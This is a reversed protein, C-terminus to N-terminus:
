GALALVGSAVARWAATASLPIQALKLAVFSGGAWWYAPHVRGLRRRDHVIAVLMLLVSVLAPGLDAAVPPPGVADPPALALQFWRAIPADLISIAAVLMLRKHWETRRVNGIAFAVLVAFMLISSLPVFAFAKGEDAMGLAIASKMSNITVLTGFITMATAFSVGIMGVRRHRALRGSAALWAQYVFYLAWGFFIAGHVHVVPNVRLGGQVMPLWYTPAFGLFAVGLCVTAMWVFFYDAKAAVRITARAEVVTSMAVGADGVM